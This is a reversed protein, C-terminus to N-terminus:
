KLIDKDTSITLDMHNIQVIKTYPDLLPSSKFELSFDTKPTKKDWDLKSLEKKTDPISAWYDRTIWVKNVLGVQLEAKTVEQLPTQKVLEYQQDQGAVPELKVPIKGFLQKDIKAM